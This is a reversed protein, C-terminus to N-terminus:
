PKPPDLRKLRVDKFEVWMPPGAHIQFAFIGRLMRGKPDNDVLDATQVGNIWQQIHNGRAIIVYDNWPVETETLAKKYADSITKLDGVKGVVQKKGQEDLVVQESVLCIRGRGREHYIFGARGPENAVEMQYGGVVWENPAKDVHKSRYQIGSNGHHMRSSLRLDFDGFQDLDAAAAAGAAPKPQYMLFTNGKTNHEKTTEGRIVGDKVSWLAPNGVWGTLDRGNFLREMGEPEAPLPTPGAAQQALASTGLLGVLLMLRMADRM